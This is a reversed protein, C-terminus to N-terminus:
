GSNLSEKNIKYYTIYELRTFSTKVIIIRLAVILSKFAIVATSAVQKGGASAALRLLKLFTQFSIRIM